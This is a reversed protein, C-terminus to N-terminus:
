ECSAKQSKVFNGAGGIGYSRSSKASIHSDSSAISKHISQSSAISATESDSSLRRYNGAGGIGWKTFDSKPCVDPLPDSVTPSAQSRFNAAGGIGTSTYRKSGFM